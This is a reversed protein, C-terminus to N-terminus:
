VVTSDIFRASVLTRTTLHPHLHLCDNTAMKSCVRLLLHLSRRLSPPLILLLLQLSSIAAERGERTLLGPSNFYIFHLLSQPWLSLVPFSSCLFFFIFAIIM